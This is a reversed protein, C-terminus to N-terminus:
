LFILKLFINLLLFHLGQNLFYVQQTQEDLQVIFLICASSEVVILKSSAAGKSKSPTRIGALFIIEFAQGHSYVPALASKLSLAFHPAQVQFLSPFNVLLFTVGPPTFGFPVSCV